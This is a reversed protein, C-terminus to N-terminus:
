TQKKKELRIFFEAGRNKTTSTINFLGSDPTLINNMFRAAARTPTLTGSRSVFLWNDIFYYSFVNTLSFKFSKM